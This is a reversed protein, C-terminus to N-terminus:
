DVDEIEDGAEPEGALSWSCNIGAQHQKWSRCSRDIFKNLPKAAQLPPNIAHSGDRTPHALERPLCHAVPDASHAIERMLPVTDVAAETASGCAFMDGNFVAQASAQIAEANEGQKARLKSEQPAQLLFDDKGLSSSLAPADFMIGRAAISVALNGLHGHALNNSLFNADKLLLASDSLHRSVAALSHLLECSGESGYSRLRRLYHEHLFSVITNHSFGCAELVSDPDDKLPARRLHESVLSEPLEHLSVDDLRKHQLIKGLAHLSHLRWDLTSAQPQAYREHMKGKQSSEDKEKAKVTRARSRKVGRTQQVPTSRLVHSIGTLQLELAMCAARIDGQSENMIHQLTDKSLSLDELRCIRQLAGKMNTKNVAPLEIHQAGANQLRDLFGRRAMPLGLETTRSSGKILDTGDTLLLVTPVSSRTATAVLAAQLEEETQETPSHPLEDILVISTSQATAPETQKSVSTSTPNNSSSTSLSLSAGSSFGTAHKLWRVFDQMRPEYSTGLVHREQELLPLPTDYMVVSQKLEHSITQVATRKGCGAPGSLLLLGCTASQQWLQLSHLKKSHVALENPKHPTHKQSLPVDHKRAHLQQSVALAQTTVDLPLTDSQQQQTITTATTQLQQESEHDGDEIIDEEDGGHHM